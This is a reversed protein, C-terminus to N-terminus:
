MCSVKACASGRTGHYISFFYWKPQFFHVFRLGTTMNLIGLMTNVPTEVGDKIQVIYNVM